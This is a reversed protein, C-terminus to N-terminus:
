SDDNNQDNKNEEAKVNLCTTACDNANQQIALQDHHVIPIKESSELAQQPNIHRYFSNTQYLNEFFSQNEITGSTTTYLTSTNTMLNTMFSERQTKLSNLM